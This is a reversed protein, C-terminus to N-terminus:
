DTWSVRADEQSHAGGSAAMGVKGSHRSFDEPAENRLADALANAAFRCDPVYPLVIGDSVNRGGLSCRVPGDSWKFAMASKQVEEEIGIRHTTTCVPGLAIGTYDHWAFAIHM